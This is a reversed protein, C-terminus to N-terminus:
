WHSHHLRWTRRHEHIRLGNQILPSYPMSLKDMTEAEMPANKAFAGLKRMVIKYGLGWPDNNLDDRLRNWCRYKSTRVARGLGRIAVLYETRRLVANRDSKKARQAVRRCSLCKRRFVAMVDTWWYAPRRGDRVRSRPIAEACAQHILRMTM